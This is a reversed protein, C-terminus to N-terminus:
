LLLGIARAIAPFSLVVATVLWLSYSAADTEGRGTAREFLAAVVGSLMITFTAALLSALFVVVKPGALLLIPMIATIMVQSTVVLFPSLLGNLIAVAMIFFIFPSSV